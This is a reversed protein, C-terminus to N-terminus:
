EDWGRTAESDIFIQPPHRARVAGGDRGHARRMAVDIEGADARAEPQDVLGHM